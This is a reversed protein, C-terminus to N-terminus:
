DSVEVQCVSHGDDELQHDLPDSILVQVLPEGGDTPPKFFNREIDVHLVASNSAVDIDLPIEESLKDSVKQHARFFRKSILSAKKAEEVYLKAAPICDCQTVM